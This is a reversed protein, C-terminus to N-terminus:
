EPDRHEFSTLLLPVFVMVGRREPNQVNPIRIKPIKFMRSKSREPHQVNPIKFTRSKSCEPNQVNPIKFMRSKSCEPNQREPNQVNPIKIKPSLVELTGEGQHQGYSEDGEERRQSLLGDDAMPDGEQPLGYWERKSEGAALLYAEVASIDAACAHIDETNGIQTTECSRQISVDTSTLRLLAFYVADLMATLMLSFPSQFDQLWHVFFTEIVAVFAHLCEHIWQILFSSGALGFGYFSEALQMMQTMGKVADIECDARTLRASARADSGVAGSLALVVFSPPSM